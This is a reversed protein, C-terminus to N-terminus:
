EAKKAKDDKKDAKKARTASMSVEAEGGKMVADFNDKDKFTMAVVQEEGQDNVTKVTMGDDTTEAVEWTGKDSNEGMQTKSEFLYSGDDNFTIRMYSGALLQEITTGQPLETGSQKLVETYMKVIDFEWTGVLHKRDYKGASATGIALALCLVVVANVIRFRKM